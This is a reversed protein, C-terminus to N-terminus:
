TRVKWPFFDTEQRSKQFFVQYLKKKTKIKSKINENIWVLNKDDCTVYTNPVFIRFFNSIIYNSFLVQFDVDKNDLLRDWNVLQLAKEINSINAKKYNWLLSQYLPPYVINLNFTCLIIQHHCSWHLSGYVRDDSVFSPQDTFILDVCSSSNRQIHTPESIVQYSGNSTSM